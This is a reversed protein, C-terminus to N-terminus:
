TADTKSVRLKYFRFISATRCDSFRCNTLLGCASINEYFNGDFEGSDTHSVETNYVTDMINKHEPYDQTLDLTAAM